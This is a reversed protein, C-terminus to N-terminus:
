TTTDLGTVNPLLLKSECCKWFVDRSNYGYENLSSKHAHAYMQVVSYPTFKRMFGSCLKLKRRWVLWIVMADQQLLFITQFDNAFVM